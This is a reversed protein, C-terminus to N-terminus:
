SELRDGVTPSPTALAPTPAYYITQAGWLASWTGLARYIWQLGRVAYKKRLLGAPLLLVGAGFGLLAKGFRQLRIALSHDLDLCCRTYRNAESQARQLMWRVKTRNGPVTEIVEAEQCWVLRLGDRKMRMFFHTDEGGTADFRSDFKYRTALAARFLVNNTAVYEVPSGTPQPAMRFFGGQVLWQPADLFKPTVPGTVIDARALQLTQYLSQLWAPTAVEDDDLFAIYDMGASELLARNRANCIGRAPECVYRAPVPSGELAAHFTEHGSGAADNDVVLIHMKLQPDSITQSRLSLLTERLLDPRKYTLLCVQIPVSGNM